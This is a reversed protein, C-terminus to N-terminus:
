PGAQGTDYGSWGCARAARQWAPLFRDWRFSRPDYRSHSRDVAAHTTLRHLPIAWRGQWLLVQAAAARYQAASYGSHGDGDGRGDAPSELSLHLAVNNISGPSGPRSRLTLDGFASMGAGYARAVDPVIRLRQGARDILLHYSGQDEDRPHPTAFMRVTDPASIVTEHLVILRPERPLSRGWADFRQRAGYNTPHAPRPREPALRLRAACAALEAESRRPLPSAPLDPVPPPAPASMPAPWPWPVQWACGGVLSSGLAGLAAAVPRRPNM